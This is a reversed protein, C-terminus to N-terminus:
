TNESWDVSVALLAFLVVNHYNISQVQTHKKVINNVTRELGSIMQTM